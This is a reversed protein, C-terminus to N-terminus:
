ARGRRLVCGRRLFRFTWVLVTFSELKLAQLACAAWRRERRLEYQKRIMAYRVRALASRQPRPRTRALHREIQPRVSPDFQQVAALIAAVNERGIPNDRILEVKVFPVGTEFLLERWFLLM